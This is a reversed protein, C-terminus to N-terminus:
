RSILIPLDTKRLLEDLVEGFMIGRITGGGYGATIILDCGQETAIELIAEPDDLTARAYATDVDYQDLYDRLKKLKTRKKKNKGDNALVVMPLDWKSTVYAAIMATLRSRKRGEWLLLPKGFSPSGGAVVLLPRTCTRIM